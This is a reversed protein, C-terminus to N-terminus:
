GVVTRIAAVDDGMIGDVALAHVRDIQARTLPPWAWIEIGNAHAEAVTAADLDEHHHQIIPAGIARAQAVLAAPDPAGREPLRDPASRLGPVAKTAVALAGHDFSAIVDDHVRGRRFIEVAIARALVAQETGTDGKVELCLAIGAELALDYLEDLSPIREGAYREDFWSGADLAQLEAFSYDSVAGSGDTTRDVLADHCLVLRGDRTRRVDAEIMDAGHEVALRFAALTQEPAEASHGRHAIVLPRSV